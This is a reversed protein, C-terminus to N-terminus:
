RRSTTTTVGPEEGTNSERRPVEGANSERLAEARERGGEQAMGCAHRAIFQHDGNDGGQKTETTLRATRSIDTSTRATRDRSPAGTDAM